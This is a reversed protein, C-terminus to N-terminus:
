FVTLALRDLVSDSCAMSQISRSCQRCQSCKSGNLEGTLKFQVMRQEM